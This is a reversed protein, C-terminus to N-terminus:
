DTRVVQGRVEGAPYEVTHVNLYILKELMARRLDGITDIARPCGAGPTADRLINAATLTEHDIWQGDVDWGRDHFGAIFAVVPGNAGERACHFHAQTVRRGREIVVELSLTGPLSGSFNIVALGRTDTTVPPVEQAGRLVARFEDNAAQAAGTASLALMALGIAHSSRM